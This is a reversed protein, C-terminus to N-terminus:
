GHPARWLHRHIRAGTMRFGIRQYVPVGMPTSFLVAERAGRLKEALLPMVTVAAGIGLGRAAPATTIALAHAVGDATFVINTAIPAGDLRALYMRWPTRGIGVARAAEVWGRAMAEPFQFGLVLTDKFDGLDREDGVEAIALGRPAADLIGPDLAALDARMCPAGGADFESMGRAALRARLAADATGTWWFFFPAGRARFWDITEDIAGEGADGAAWAGKFIPNSPAAHHRNGRATEVLEAGPLAAAIARFLAYLNALVPETM